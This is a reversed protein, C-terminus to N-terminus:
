RAVRRGAREAYEAETEYVGEGDREARDNAAEQAEWAGWREADCRALYEPDGALDAALEDAPDVDDPDVDDPDVAPPACDACLGEPHDIGPEGGCSPCSPERDHPDRTIWADLSASLRADDGFM